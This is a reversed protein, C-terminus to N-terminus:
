QKDTVLWLQRVDHATFWSIAFTPSGIANYLKTTKIHLLQQWILPWQKVFFNSHPGSHDKQNICYRISIKINIFISFFILHDPSRGPSIGVAWSGWISNLFCFVHVFTLIVFCNPYCGLRDLFHCLTPCLAGQFCLSEPWNGDIVESIKQPSWLLAKEGLSQNTPWPNKRKKTFEWLAEGTM